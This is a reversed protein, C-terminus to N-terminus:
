EHSPRAPARYLGSARRLTKREQRTLSGMGDRQIKELLADVHGRLEFEELFKARARRTDLWELFRDLRPDLRTYIWAAAVAGAMAVPSPGERAQDRLMLVGYLLASGFVLWFLTIARMPLIMFLLAPRRPNRLAAALLVGLVPAHFGGMGKLEPNGASGSLVDYAAEASGGYLAMAACFGFMRAGGWERELENGARLFLWGLVIFVAISAPDVPHAFPYTIFRWAELGFLAPVTKFECADQFSIV